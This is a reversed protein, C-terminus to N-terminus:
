PVGLRISPPAAIIATAEQVYPRCVFHQREYLQRYFTRLIM